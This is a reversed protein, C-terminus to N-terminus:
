WATRVREVYEAIQFPRDQVVPASGTMAWKRALAPSNHNAIAIDWEDVGKATRGRWRLATEALDQATFAIAYAPDLAQELSTSLHAALNIQAVGHDQGNSGVAAPDLASENVLLGGLLKAPVDFTISNSRILPLLLMRMSQRGIIGDAEIGAEQQAKKANRSSVPGFWGDETVGLLRQIARTALWVVKADHTKDIGQIWSAGIATEGDANLRWYGAKSKSGPSAPLLGGTIRWAGRGPEPYVNM